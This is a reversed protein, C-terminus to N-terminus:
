EAASRALTRRILPPILAKLLWVLIPPTLSLGVRLVRAVKDRFPAARPTSQDQGPAPGALVSRAHVLSSRRQKLTQKLREFEPSYRGDFFQMCGDVLSLQLEVKREDHISYWRGKWHVRQVVQTGALCAVPGHQAMWLNLLWDYPFLDLYEEPLRSLLEARYTTASARAINDIIIDDAGFYTFPRSTDVHPKLEYRGKEQYLICTQGFAISCEWHKELLTVQDRLKTPSSWYDDGELVSVYRGRCASFARRYNRATGLNEDAPLFVLEKHGATEYRIIDLTKDRSCDDAVVIEFRFDAEQRLISRVAQRVYREQNYTLLIVSAFPPEGADGGDLQTCEASAKASETSTEAGVPVTVDGGSAHSAATV